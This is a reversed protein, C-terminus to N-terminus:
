ISIMELQMLQMGAEAFAAAVIAKAIVESASDTYREAQAPPLLIL